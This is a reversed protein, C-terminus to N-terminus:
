KKGMQILKGHLISFNLNSTTCTPIKPHSKAKLAAMLM